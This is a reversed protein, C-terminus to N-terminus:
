DVKESESETEQPCGFTSAGIEKLIVTAEWSRKWGKEDGNSSMLNM